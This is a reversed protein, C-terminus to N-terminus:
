RDRENNLNGARDTFQTRSTEKLHPLGGGFFGWAITGEVYLTQGSQVEVNLIDHKTSFKHLGPEVPYIFYRGNYLHGIIADRNEDVVMLDAIAGVMRGLRFFIIQAKGPPPASIEESETKVIAERKPIAVPDAMALLAALLM